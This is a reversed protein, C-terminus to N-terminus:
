NHGGVGVSRRWQKDGLILCGGVGAVLGIFDPEYHEVTDRGVWHSYYLSIWTNNIEGGGGGRSYKGSIVCMCYVSLVAATHGGSDSQGRQHDIM